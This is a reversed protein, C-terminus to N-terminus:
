HQPANSLVQSEYIATFDAWFHQWKEVTTVCKLYKEDNHAVVTLADALTVTPSTGAPAATSDHGPETTPTSVGAQPVSKTANFLRIANLSLKVRHLEKDQAIQKETLTTNVEIAKDREISVTRYKATLADAAAKAAKSEEEYIKNNDTIEQKLQKVQTQAVQVESKYHDRETVVVEYRTFLGVAVLGILVPLWNAKLFNLLVTLVVM